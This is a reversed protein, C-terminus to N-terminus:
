VVLILNWELLHLAAANKEARVDWPPNSCVYQKWRAFPQPLKVSIYLRPVKVCRLYVCLNYFRCQSLISGRLVHFQLNAIQEEYKYV